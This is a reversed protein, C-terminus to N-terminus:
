ELILTLSGLRNLSCEQLRDKSFKRQHLHLNTPTFSPSHNQIQPTIKLHSHCILTMNHLTM